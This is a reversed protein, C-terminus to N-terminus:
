KGRVTGRKKKKGNGGFLGALAGGCLCAALEILGQLGLEFSDSTMLGVALILLFCVGGAALGAILRRSSWWACVLRGGVLCGAVCAVATLQMEAGDKLIGKSVAVAGLLLIVLEVGLALLGGLLVAATMQAANAGQTEAKRM